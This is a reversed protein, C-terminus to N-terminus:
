GREALEPNRNYIELWAEVSCDVPNEQDLDSPEDAYEEVIEGFFSEAREPHAQCYVKALKEYLYPDSDMRDLLEELMQAGLAKVLAGLSMMIGKGPFSLSDVRKVSCDLWLFTICDDVKQEM